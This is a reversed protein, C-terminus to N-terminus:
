WVSSERKVSATDICVALWTCKSLV